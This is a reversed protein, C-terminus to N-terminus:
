LRSFKSEGNNPPTNTYLVTGDNYIVKYIPTSRSTGSNNGNYISLVRKVYQQTEPIPPTGGFKEITGPGANYAALAFTLNGNFKDLLYRLYRTGGEINEESNFPNKVGMEKATLPMLQMLGIAGKKSVAASNWNSEVKIVAKVLSPALNYKKSKSYIIQNYDSPNKAYSKKVKNHTKVSMIKNYENNAPTNTFHAVGNEDVYKYIDAHSTIGWAMFLMLVIVFILRVM